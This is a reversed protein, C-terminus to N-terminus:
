IQCWSNNFGVKHLKRWLLIDLVTCYLSSILCLLSFSGFTICFTNGSFHEANNHSYRCSTDSSAALLFLETNGLSYLLSRPTEQWMTLPPWKWPLRWKFAYVSSILFSPSLIIALPLNVESSDLCYSSQNPPSHWNHIFREETHWGVRCAKTFYSKSDWGCKCFM